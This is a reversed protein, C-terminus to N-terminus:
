AVPQLGSVDFFAPVGSFEYGAIKDTNYKSQSDASLRHLRSVPEKGLLGGAPASLHLFGSLHIHRCISGGPMRGATNWVRAKPFLRWRARRYGASIKM